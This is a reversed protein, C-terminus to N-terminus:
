AGRALPQLFLAGATNNDQATGHYADMVLANVLRAADGNCNNFADILGKPPRPKRTQPDPGPDFVSYAGDTAAVLGIFYPIADPSLEGFRPAVTSVGLCQTLGGSSSSDDATLL